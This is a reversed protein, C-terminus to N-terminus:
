CIWLVTLHLAMLDFAGAIAQFVETGLRLEIENDTCLKVFLLIASRTSMLTHAEAGFSM